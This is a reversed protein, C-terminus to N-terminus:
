MNTVLISTGPNIKSNLSLLFPRPIVQLALMCIYLVQGLLLRRRVQGQRREHCWGRYLWVEYKNSTNYITKYVIINYCTAQLHTVDMGQRAQPGHIQSETM